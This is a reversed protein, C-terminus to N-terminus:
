CTYEVVGLAGRSGSPGPGDVVAALVVRSLCDRVTM